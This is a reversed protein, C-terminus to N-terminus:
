LDHLKMLMIVSFGAMPGRGLATSRIWVIACQGNLVPHSKLNESRCAHLQSGEPINSRTIQYTSVSTETFSVAAMM